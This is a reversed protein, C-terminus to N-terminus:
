FNNRLYFCNHETFNYYGCHGPRQYQVIRAKFTNDFSLGIVGLLQLTQQQGFTLHKKKSIGLRDPMMATTALPCINRWIGTGVVLLAPAVPILVNWFLTVGLPPFFVLTFLLGTGIFWFLIQLIKWFLLVSSSINTLPFVLLQVTRKMGAIKQSHIQFLFVPFHNSSFIMHNFDYLGICQFENAHSNQYQDFFRNTQM